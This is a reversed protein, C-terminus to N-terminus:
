LNSLRDQLAVVIEDDGVLQALELLSKLFKQNDLSEVSNALTKIENVLGKSLRYM